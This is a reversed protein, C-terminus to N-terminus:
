EHIPQWAIPDKEAAIWGGLSIQSQPALPQWWQDNLYRMVAYTQFPRHIMCLVEEDSHPLEEAPNHWETLLRHEDEAGRQYAEGALVIDPSGGAVMYAYNTARDIISQKPQAEEYTKEFIDPKCPYFEGQVGKIIYDGVSATMTGELTNIKLTPNNGDKYDVRITEQGAFKQIELIRDVDDVFQIAEIVVNKKRYQKM